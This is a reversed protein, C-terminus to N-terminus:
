LIKATTPVKGSKKCYHVKEDITTSKNIFVNQVQNRPEPYQLINVTATSLHKRFAPQHEPFKLGQGFAVNILAHIWIPFM